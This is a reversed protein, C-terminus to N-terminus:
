LKEHTPPEATQDSVNPLRERSARWAANVVPYGHGRIDHGGREGVEIVYWRWWDDSSKWKLPGGIQRLAEQEEKWAWGSVLRVLRQLLVRSCAALQTLQNKM